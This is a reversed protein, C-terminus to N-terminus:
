FPGTQEWYACVVFMYRDSTDYSERSQLPHHSVTHPPLVFNLNGLHIVLSIWYMCLVLMPSTKACSGRALNAQQEMAMCVLFKLHVYYPTALQAQLTIKITSPKRYMHLSGHITYILPTLQSSTTITSTYAEWATLQLNAARTYSTILLFDM